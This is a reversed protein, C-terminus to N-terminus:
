LPPTLRDATHKKQGIFGGLGGLAVVVLLFLLDHLGLRGRFALNVALSLLGALVGVILGSIIGAGETRRAVRFALLLTLGMELWPMLKRSVSAAFRSIAAQDPAGRAEFALMFAYVTSILIPILFSLAIVAFAASVVSRWRIKSLSDSM